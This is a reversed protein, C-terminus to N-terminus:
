AEKITFPKNITSCIISVYETNIYGGAQTGLEYHGNPVIKISGAGEVADQGFDIWMDTDSVNQILIYVRSDNKSIATQATSAAVINGTITSFGSKNPTLKTNISETSNSIDSLESIIGCTTCVQEVCESEQYLFTASPVITSTQVSVSHSYQSVPDLNQPTPYYYSGVVQNDAFVTAIQNEYQLSFKSTRSLGSPVTLNVNVFSNDSSDLNLRISSITDLDPNHNVLLAVYDSGVDYFDGFSLALLSTTPQDSTVSLIQGSILKGITPTQITHIIEEGIVGDLTVTTGLNGESDTSTDLTIPHSNDLVTTNSLETLNGCVEGTSFNEISQQVQLELEPITLLPGVPVVTSGNMDEYSITYTGTTEELEEKRFVLQNSNGSDILTDTTFDTSKQLEILLNGLETLISQQTSELNFGTIPNQETVPLPTNSITVSGGGGGGGSQATVSYLQELLSIIRNYANNNSYSM